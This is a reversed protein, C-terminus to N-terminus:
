DEREESVKPGNGQIMADEQGDLQSWAKLRQCRASPRTITLITMAATHSANFASDPRMRSPRLLLYAGEIRYLEATEFLM